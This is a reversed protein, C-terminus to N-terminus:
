MPQGGRRSCCDTALPRHDARNRLLGIHLYRRPLLCQAIRHRRILLRRSPALRCSTVTQAAEVGVTLMLMWKYSGPPRMADLPQHIAASCEDSNRPFNAVVFYGARACRPVHPFSTNVPASLFTFIPVSIPSLGP